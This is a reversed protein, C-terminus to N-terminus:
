TLGDNGDQGERGTLDYDAAHQHDQHSDAVLGLQGRHQEDAPEHPEVEVDVGPPRHGGVLGHAVEELVVKELHSPLGSSSNHNITEPVTFM